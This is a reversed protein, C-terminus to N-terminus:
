TRAATALEGGPERTVAAPATRDGDAWAAEVLARCRAAFQEVTLLREVIRRGAAGLRAREAPHDLLFDIARRLAAPDAPPVYIGTAELPLDAAQALHRLWAGADEAPGPAPSEPDAGALPLGAVVDTQGRARTVVVAKGMAMAELITTIGAQFDVDHLPVVVVAARAYLDRLAPYDFSALEVNPPPTADRTTDASRAYRSSTTIVVRADLGTVAQFLTPYDRAERGVSCVLREEAVPAPQWFATDAQYPLLALRDRPIALRTAALEYQRTSHLAIRSIHSQLRLWRFFPRKKAASLRHGITIHPTRARALKLLLALPLAINESYTFIARYAHRTRFALWAQATAVGCVRAIVRAVASQDVWARGVVTADLARALAVYDKRPENPVDTAGQACAASVILLIESM